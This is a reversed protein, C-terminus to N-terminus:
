IISKGKRSMILASNSFTPCSKMSIDGNMHDIERGQNVTKMNIYNYVDGEKNKMNIYNYM